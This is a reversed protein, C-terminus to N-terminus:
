SPRQCVAKTPIPTDLSPWMRTPLCFFFTSCESVYIFTNSVSSIGWLSDSDTSQSKRACLPPDEDASGSGTRLIGGAPRPIPTRGLAQELSKSFGALSPNPGRQGQGSSAALPSDPPAGLDVLFCSHRLSNTAPLTAWRSGGVGSRLTLLAPCLSLDCCPEGCFQAPPCLLSLCAAGLSPASNPRQAREPSPGCDGAAELSLGPFASFGPSPLPLRVSRPSSQMGPQLDSSRLGDRTAPCGGCAPGRLLWGTAESEQWFGRRSIGPTRRWANIQHSGVQSVPSRKERRLARRQFSFPALM